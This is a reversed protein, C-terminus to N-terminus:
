ATSTTELLDDLATRVLDAAEDAIPRLEQREPIEAMVAPDLADVVTKGGVRRVVVNCPLLTGIRPEVELARHALRPNCLGLIVYPEVDEGLKDRLTTQVDIETLTGFGQKQFAEKVRAVTEGYPRDLTIETTYHM